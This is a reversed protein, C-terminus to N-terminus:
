IRLAAGIGVGTAGPDSEPEFYVVQGFTNFRNRVIDFGLRLTSERFREDGGGQANEWHITVPGIGTGIGFETGITPSFHWQTAEISDQDVAVAHGVTGAFVGFTLDFRSRPFADIGITARGIWHQYSEGRADVKLFGLGQVLDAGGGLATGGDALGQVYLEGTLDHRMPKKHRGCGSDCSDADDDDSDAAEDSVTSDDDAPADQAIAPAALFLTWM